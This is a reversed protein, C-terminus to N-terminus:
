GKEGIGVLPPITHAQDNELFVTSGHDQRGGVRNHQRLTGQHIYRDSAFCGERGPEIHSMLGQQALADQVRINLGQYDQEGVTGTVYGHGGHRRLIFGVAQSVLDSRIIYVTNHYIHLVGGEVLTQSLGQCVM